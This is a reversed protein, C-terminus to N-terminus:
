IRKTKPFVPPPKHIPRNNIEFYVKKRDKYTSIINHNFIPKTLYFNTVYVKQKKIYLIAGNYQRQCRIKRSIFENSDKSLNITFDNETIWPRYSGNIVEIGSTKGTLFQYLSSILLPLGLELKIKATLTDDNNSLTITYEDILVGADIKENIKHLSLTTKEEGLLIPWIDPTPGRNTFLNGRHINYFKYTNVIESPVLMDLQYILFITNINYTCIIERFDKIWDFVSVTLGINKAEQILEKSVRKRLCLINKIRFYSFKALEKLGIHSSGIYIIELIIIIRKNHICEADM